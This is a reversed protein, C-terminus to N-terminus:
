PYVHMPVSTLSLTKYHRMLDTPARVLYSLLPVHGFQRQMRHSMCTCILVRNFKIWKLYYIVKHRGTMNALPLIKITRTNCFFFFFFCVFFRDDEFTCTSVNMLVNKSNFGRWSSGCSRRTMESKPIDLQSNMNSSVRSYTLPRFANPFVSECKCTSNELVCDMMKHMYLVHVHVYM